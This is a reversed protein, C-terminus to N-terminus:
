RAPQMSFNIKSGSRTAIEGVEGPPLKDGDTDLVALEVGPLAKGASRM